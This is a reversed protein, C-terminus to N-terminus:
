IKGKEHNSLLESLFLNLISLLFSDTLSLSRLIYAHGGLVQLPFTDGNASSLIWDMLTRSRPVNLHGSCSPGGHCWSAKGKLYGIAGSMDDVEIAM